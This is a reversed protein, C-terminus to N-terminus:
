ADSVGLDALEREYGAIEKEVHKIQVDLPLPPSNLGQVDGMVSKGAKLDALRQRADALAARIADEHTM